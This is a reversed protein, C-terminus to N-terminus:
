EGTAKEAFAKLAGTMKELVQGCDSIGHRDAIYRPDNYSLKVLGSDDEWILIKLPLDIGATQGCKMLATGVKPNGFIFLVTPRLTEGIEAAGAAHDIRSFITMGKEELIPELRDATIQVSHRSEITIMGHFGFALPPTLGLLLLPLLLLLLQRM